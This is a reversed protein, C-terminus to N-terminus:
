RISIRSRRHRHRNPRRGPDHIRPDGPPIDRRQLFGEEALTIFNKVTQPAEEAYLELTIAGQNTNIVATYSTSEAAATPSPEPEPTPQLVCGALVVATFLALVPLLRLM